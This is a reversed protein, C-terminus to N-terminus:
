SHRLARFYAPAARDLDGDLGVEIGARDRLRWRPGRGPGADRGVFLGLEELFKVAAAAGSLLLDAAGAPGQRRGRRHRCFPRRRRSVLVGPWPAVKQNLTASGTGGGGTSPAGTASAAATASV